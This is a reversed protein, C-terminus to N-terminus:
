EIELLEAHWGESKHLDQALHEEAETCDRVTQELDTKRQREREQIHQIAQEIRAIAAGVGYFRGQVENFKHGLELHRTRQIGITSDQHVQQTVVAEDNLELERIILQKQDAEARLARYRVAQLRAKLERESQKYEKYKEAAQAQRE